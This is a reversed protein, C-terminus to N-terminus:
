PAQDGLGFGLVAIQLHEVSPAAAFFPSVLSRWNTFAESNRFVVTHDELTEWEVMLRYEDPQELSREVRMSICGKAARFLPVSREAALEFAAGSGPSISLRAVELVRGSSM